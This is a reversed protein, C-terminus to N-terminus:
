VKALLLSWYLGQQPSEEIDVCNFKVEDEDFILYYFHKAKILDKLDDSKVITARYTPITQYIGIYANIQRISLKEIKPKSDNEQLIETKTSGGDTSILLQYINDEIECQRLMFQRNAELQSM